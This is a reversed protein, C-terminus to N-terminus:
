GFVDPYDERLKKMAKKLKAELEEQEEELRAMKKEAAQISSCDFESSLRQMSQDYAGQARDVDRRLREVREKLDAIDSVSPM